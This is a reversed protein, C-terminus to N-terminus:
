KDWHSPELGAQCGKDWQYTTPLPQDMKFKGSILVKGERRVGEWHAIIIKSAETHYPIPLCRLDKLFTFYLCECYNFRSTYFGFTL